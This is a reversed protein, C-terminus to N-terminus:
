KDGKSEATKAPIKIKVIAFPSENVFELSYRNGFALELRKNVNLIGIGFGHPLIEKSLLKELLHEEFSSESNAVTILVSEKEALAKIRIFCQDSDDELTYHIANEVLPQLTFKPLYVDWLESPVDIDYSLSNEYRIEQINMYYKVLDLEQRLSSDENKRSLTIQLLKGLSETMLSIPADKLLKGRWNVSQLTNYLFHPNIQMELAKLQMEKARLKNEYNEKILTQIKYAMSDFQQHLLGIEDHRSEYPYSFQIIEFNENGFARIKKMLNDFHVVLPKLLLKTLWICLCLSVFLLFLFLKQFFRVNQYMSDYSSLCFYDWNTDAVTGRVIFYRKGCVKEIAYGGPPIATLPQQRFDKLNEPVYLPQSSSCLIYATSDQTYDGGSIDELMQKININIILVGLEDLKLHEIRRLSRVLFIGYTHCYDTIWCLRGEQQRATELLNKQMDGPMIHSDIGSSLASFNDTVIQIYDVYSSKYKQYYTNLAARTDSYANPPTEGNEADKTDSLVKQLTSDELIFNAMNQISHLDQSIDKSSYSLLKGFTQYLMHNGSRIILMFGIFIIFALLLIGPLIMILYKRALPANTLKKKLKRLM